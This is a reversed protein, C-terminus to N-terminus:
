RYGRWREDDDAADWASRTQNYQQLLQWNQFAMLGFFIMMIPGPIYPGWELFPHNVKLLVALGVLALSGGVAVGTAHTAPDPRRVGLIYLVERLAQGGDLPWVPILNLIGWSLNQIVLFLYVRDLVPHKFRWDASLNSVVVLGFLLFTAAPGALNVALMRWGSAPRGGSPIALGGFAILAIRAPTGFWRFAAAHGLEHLLISVFGCAVWVVISAPGLLRDNFTTSGVLAMGVWFWVSVRVPYPGLRFALDLPSPSSDLFM